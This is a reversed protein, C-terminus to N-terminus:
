FKLKLNSASEAEMLKGIDAHSQQKLDKRLEKPQNIKNFHEQHTENTSSSPKSTSSM